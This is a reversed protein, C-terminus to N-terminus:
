GEKYMAYSYNRLAQPFFLSLSVLAPFNLVFQIMAYHRLNAESQDSIRPFGAWQKEGTSLVQKQENPAFTQYITPCFIPDSM